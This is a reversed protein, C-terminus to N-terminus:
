SDQEKKPDVFQIGKDKLLEDIKKLENKAEINEKFKIIQLLQEKSLEEIKKDKLEDINIETISLLEKRKILLKAVEEGFFDQLTTPSVNDNRKKTKRVRKEIQIELNKEKLLEKLAEYKKINNNINAIKQNITQEEVGNSLLLEKAKEWNAKKTTGM